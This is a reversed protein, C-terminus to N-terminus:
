AKKRGCVPCDTHRPLTIVRTDMELADFLLMRGALPEGAGTLVKIAELAQMCGLVGAAAGIVGVERATPLAEPAAYVTCRCCPGKGPLWTMVQGQFRVVGAHCFPKQARVCADNIVLKSDKGDTCDLVFDYPAILAAANEASVRLHHPVVCVDGNLASLKEQASDVKARGLDAATHLIQRQLNSLEVADSDAIGLVGVGAAALYLAAPSGLGGAGIVLVGARRLAEQGREGLERLAVNRSYRELQVDSLTM